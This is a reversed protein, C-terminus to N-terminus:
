FSYGFSFGFFSIFKQIPSFIFPETKRTEFFPTYGIRFCFGKGPHQLRLGILGTIVPDLGNENAINYNDGDQQIVKKFFLTSGVGAEVSLVHYVHYIANVLIPVNITRGGNFLYAGVGARGSIYLNKSIKFVREYNLSGFLFANGAIELSLSNKPITFRNTDSNQSYAEVTVLCLLIIIIRM